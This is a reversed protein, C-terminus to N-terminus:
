KHTVIQFYHRGKTYVATVTGDRERVVSAVTYGPNRAAIDEIYRSVPQGIERPKPLAVGKRLKAPVREHVNYGIPQGRFTVTGNKRVGFDRKTSEVQMLARADVRQSRPFKRSPLTYFAGRQTDFYYRPRSKGPAPRAYIREPHSSSLHPAAM